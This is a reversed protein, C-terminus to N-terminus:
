YSGLYQWNCSRQDMTSEAQRDYWCEPFEKDYLKLITRGKPPTFIISVKILEFNNKIIMECSEQLFRHGIGKKMPIM